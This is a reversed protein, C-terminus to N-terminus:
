EAVDPSGGLFGADTAQDFVAANFNVNVVGRVLKGFEGEKLYRRFKEVAAEDWVRADRAGEVNTVAVITNAILKNESSRIKESDTEGEPVNYLEEVLGPPLGRLEFTLVSKKVKESLEEIRANIETYDQTDPSEDMKLRDQNAKLLETASLADTYVTVKENPYATGEIFSLVDFAGPAQAETIADITEM